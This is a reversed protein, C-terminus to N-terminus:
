DPLELHWYGPKHDRVLVETIYWYLLEDAEKDKLHFMKETDPEKLFFREGAVGQAKYAGVLVIM